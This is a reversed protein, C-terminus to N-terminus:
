ANIEKQLNLFPKVMAEISYNEKCFNCIATRKNIWYDKREYLNIIEQSLSNLNDTEFFMTNKGEIVAEIEPSHPENKSVIMPVGFGFSQTVSLGVYGPSIGVLSTAYLEKLKNYDGIHGLIKIREFLNNQKIYKEISDREEGDGVVILNAEVPLNEMVQHFAKVLFLTKKNKTLRGVYIINKILSVEKNVIMEDKYFVSNPAISIKKNPMKHQLEQQQTKTYVIIEDALNRMINRLRDTKSNVGKRSWAHGWLITKKRLVKRILLLIWNSIIRPNLELILIDEQLIFWLGTQVLFNRKYFFYNKVHKKFLITPDSKVSKEFYYDGGYLEFYAGLEKKITLFFKKRYDPTVTQLIILKKM